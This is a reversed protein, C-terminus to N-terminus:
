IPLESPWKYEVLSFPSHILFNSTPEQILFILNEVLSSMKRINLLSLFMLNYLVFLKSFNNIQQRSIEPTLQDIPITRVSDIFKCVMQSKANLTLGDIKVRRGMFWIASVWNPMKLVVLRIVTLLQM